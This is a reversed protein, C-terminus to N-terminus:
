PERPEGVDGPYHRLVRELEEATLGRGEQQRSQGEAGNVLAQVRRATLM